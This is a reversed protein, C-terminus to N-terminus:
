VVWTENANNLKRIELIAKEFIDKAMKLKRASIWMAEYEHPARANVKGTTGDEKRYAIEYNKMTAELLDNLEKM